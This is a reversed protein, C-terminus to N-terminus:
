DDKTTSTTPRVEFARPEPISSTTKKFSAIDDDVDISYTSPELSRISSTTKQHGFSAIDDDIFYIPPELTRFPVRWKRTAPDLVKVSPQSKQITFQVETVKRTEYDVVLSSREGTIMWLDDDM